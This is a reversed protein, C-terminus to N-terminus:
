IHNLIKKIRDYKVFEIFNLFLIQGCGKATVLAAVKNLYTVGTWNRKGGFNKAIMLFRVLETIKM